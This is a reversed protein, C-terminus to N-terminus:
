IIISFFKKKRKKKLYYKYMRLYLKNVCPEDGGQGYHYYLGVLHDHKDNQIRGVKNFLVWSIDESFFIKSYNETYADFKQFYNDIVDM